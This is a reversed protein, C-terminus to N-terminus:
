YYTKIHKNETKTITVQNVWIAPANGTLICGDQILNNKTGTWISFECDKCDQNICFNHLTMLAEYLNSDVETKFHPNSNYWDRFNNSTEVKSEITGDKLIFKERNYDKMM